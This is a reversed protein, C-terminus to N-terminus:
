KRLGLDKRAWLLLILFSLLSILDSFLRLPTETFKLEVRNAGSPLKLDIVGRRNGYDIEIERGNVKAIWGPYYITNVRAVQEKESSVEFYIKKSNYTQNRTQVGDSLEVKESFRAIPKEKVWHPMYEDKV